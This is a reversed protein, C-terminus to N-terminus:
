EERLAVLPDIRAARWSPVAAALAVVAFIAVFVIAYTSGDIANLGFLLSGILRSCGVSLATGIGLGAIALLAARRM